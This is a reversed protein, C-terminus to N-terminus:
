GTTLETLTSIWRYPLGSRLDNYRALRDVIVCPIGAQTAFAGDSWPDDGVMVVEGNLNVQEELTYWMDVRPKPRVGAGKPTIIATFYDALGFGQVIAPAHNNNTVLYASEGRSQIAQLFPEADDFLHPQYGSFVREILETKLHEPWGLEGFVFDLLEDEPVDENARKQATLTVADFRAADYPLTNRRILDPLVDQFAWTNPGLVLTDDFDLLWHM